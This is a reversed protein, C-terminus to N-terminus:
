GALVKEFRVARWDQSRSFGFGSRRALGQMAENTKLTEGFLFHGLSVARSQLASLLARGLGQRQWSDAVSIAFEGHRQECASTRKHRSL